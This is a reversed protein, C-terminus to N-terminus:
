ARSLVETFTSAPKKGMSFILDKDKLGVIFALMKMDESYHPSKIKKVKFREIYERVLEKKYQRITLIHTSPRKAGHWTLFQSIFTKRLQKFNAISGLALQWYTGCELQAPWHSLFLEANLCILCLMLNWSRSMPRSTNSSTQLVTMLRWGWCRSSPLFKLM